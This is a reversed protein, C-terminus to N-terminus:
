LQNSIAGKFVHMYVHGVSLFLFILLPRNCSIRCSYMNSSYQFNYFNIRSDTRLRHPELKSKECFHIEWTISVVISDSFILTRFLSSNIYELLCCFRCRACEFFVSMQMCLMGCSINKLVLIDSHWYYWIM